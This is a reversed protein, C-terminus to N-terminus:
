LKSFAKRLVGTSYGCIKMTKDKITKAPCKHSLVDEKISVSLLCNNEM